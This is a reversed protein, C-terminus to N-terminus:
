KETYGFRKLEKESNRWNKRVKVYVDLFVKKDIFKEIDLRAETAAKKLALGGKGILIAKQSDREVYITASIKTINEEEKFSEVVIEVSYPIEKEYYYLIKERIFEGIFFRVNRDSVEDDPFYAPHEPSIELFFDLMKSQNFPHLSSYPIVGYFLGSKKWKESKELIQIDNLKDVKNLILIKKGEFNALIDIVEIGLEEDAEDHVLLLIDADELSEKVAEMMAEQMKYKPIIIGPTDSFILQYEPTSIFGKIRHRTTQAKPSVICFRYGMLSNLFTSKGANPKGIITIFASKHM